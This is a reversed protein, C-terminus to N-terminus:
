GIVYEMELWDGINNQILFGNRQYFILAPINSHWVQLRIISCKEEKVYSKIEQMMCTGIHQRLYIKKVAISSIYANKTNCYVSSSAIDIGDSVIFLNHATESLKLAYEEIKVRGSLEPIMESDIERLFDAIRDNYANGQVWEKKLRNM